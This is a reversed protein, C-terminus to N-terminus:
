HISFSDSPEVIHNRPNLDDPDVTDEWTERPRGIIGINTNRFNLGVRIELVGGM